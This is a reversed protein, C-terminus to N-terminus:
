QVSFRHAANWGKVGDLNGCCTCIKRHPADDTMTSRSDAAIVKEEKAPIAVKKAPEENVEGDDTAMADVFRDVMAHLRKRDDDDNAEEPEEEEESDSDMLRDLAAHLKLAQEEDMGAESCSHDLLTHGRKRRHFDGIAADRMHSPESEAAGQTMVIPTERWDVGRVKQANLDLLETGLTEHNSM